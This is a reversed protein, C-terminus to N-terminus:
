KPQKRYKALYEDLRANSRRQEESTSDAVVDMIALLFNVWVPLGDAMAYINMDSFLEACVDKGFIANVDARMEEDMARSVKFIERNDTLSNVQERYKTQKQDLTDFTDYLREVFFSDTPNFSIECIGNVTFTKIGNAFNVSAMIFDVFGTCTSEDTLVRALQESPAINNLAVSTYVFDGSDGLLDQIKFYCTLQVNILDLSRADM